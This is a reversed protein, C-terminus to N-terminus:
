TNESGRGRQRRFISTLGFIVISDMFSKKSVNFTDQVTVNGFGSLHLLKLQREQIEVKQIIHKRNNNLANNRITIGIEERFNIKVIFIRITFLYAM